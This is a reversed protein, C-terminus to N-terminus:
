YEGALPRDAHEKWYNDFEAKLEDTMNVGFKKENNVTLHNALM